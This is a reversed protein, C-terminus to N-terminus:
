CCEIAYTWFHMWFAHQLTPMTVAAIALMVWPSMLWHSFWSKGFIACTGCSCLVALFGWRLDGRMGIAGAAKLSIFEVDM